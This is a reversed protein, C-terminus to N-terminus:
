SRAELFKQAEYAADYAYLYQRSEPSKMNEGPEANARPKKKFGAEGLEALEQKWKATMGAWAKDRGEQEPGDQLTVMSANGLAMRRINEIRPQRFDQFSRMTRALEVATHASSVFEAIAAADDLAQAGGQGLHPVVAHAADGILVFKGSESVYRPLPPLEGLTWKACDDVHDWIKRVASSFNKVLERAERPDDPENWGALPADSPRPCTVLTNYKEGGAITYGLVASGPGM